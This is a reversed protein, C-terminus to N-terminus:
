LIEIRKNMYWFRVIIMVTLSFFYYLPYMRITLGGIYVITEVLAVIFLKEVFVLYYILSGINLVLFSFALILTFYNHNKTTFFLHLKKFLADVKHLLAFTELFEIQKTFLQIPTMLAAIGAVIALIGFLKNEITSNTTFEYTCIYYPLGTYLVIM